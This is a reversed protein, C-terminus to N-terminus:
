LWSTIRSSRALRASADLRARRRSRRRRRDAADRGRLTAAAAQLDCPDADGGRDDARRDHVAADARPTRAPGVARRHRDAWLDQSRFVRLLRRRPQSPRASRAARAARRRAHSESRSRPGRGGRPRCRDACRDRELLAHARGAPMARHTRQGASRSRAAGGADDAPLASRRGAAPGAKALAGSQQSTRSDLAPDRRRAALSGGFSHALLNISSTTGYTFVVEQTRVPTCSAHSARGRRIIPMPPRGRARMCGRTCMPARKWRSAGCLM